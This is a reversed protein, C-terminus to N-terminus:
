GKWGSLLQRRFHDPNTTPAKCAGYQCVYATPVGNQAVKDKTVEADDNGDPGTVILAAHSLALDHFVKILAATRKDDPAGAIVTEYFPGAFLEAVDLWGAMEIGAKSALQGFSGLLHELKDHYGSMGTLSFALLLAHAMASNGSPLVNDILDLKRGLPATITSPTLFYGGDDAKFFTEVMELLELARELYNRSGTAQYLEFLALALFAYDDLVGENQAVGDTSSRLLRGNKQRHNEWLFEAANEAGTKYRGDGFFMYGKAMAGIALANWSTIIKKDLGPKVRNDRYNRLADVHKDFLGAM